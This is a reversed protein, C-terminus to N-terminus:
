KAMVMMRPMMPQDCNARTTRPLSILRRSSSKTIAAETAPAVLALMMKRWRSGDNM